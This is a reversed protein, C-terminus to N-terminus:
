PSARSSPVAAPLASGSRGSVGGKARFAGQLVSLVGAGQGAQRAFGSGVGDGMRGWGLSWDQGTGAGEGAWGRGWSWSWGESAAAGAGLGWGVWWTSSCAAPGLCAATRRLRARAGSLLLQQGRVRGQGQQRRERGGLSWWTTIGAWSESAVACPYLLEAHIVEM